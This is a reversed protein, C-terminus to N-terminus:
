TYIYTVTKHTWLIRGRKIATVLKDSPYIDATVIKFSM